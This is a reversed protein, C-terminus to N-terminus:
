NEAVLLEVIPGSQLNMGRQYLFIVTFNTTFVSPLQETQSIIKIHFLNFCLIHKLILRKGTMM